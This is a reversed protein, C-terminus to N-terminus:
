RAGRLFVLSIQLCKRILGLLVVIEAEGDLDAEVIHRGVKPSARSNHKTTVDLSRQTIFSFLFPPV